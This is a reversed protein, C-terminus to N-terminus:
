WEVEDMTDCDMEEMRDILSKKLEVCQRKDLWVKMDNYINQALESGSSWGM